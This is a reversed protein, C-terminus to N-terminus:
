TGQRRSPRNRWLRWVQWAMFVVACALAVPALWHWLLMGGFGVVGRNVEVTHAVPRNQEDTEWRGTFVYEQGEAPAYLGFLLTPSHVLYAVTDPDSPRVPPGGWLRLVVHVEVVWRADIPDVVVVEGAYELVQQVRTVRGIFAYEETWSEPMAFATPGTAEGAAAPADDLAVPSAAIASGVIVLLAGLLSLSPPM